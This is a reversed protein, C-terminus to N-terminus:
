HSSNKFIMIYFGVFVFFGFLALIHSVLNNYLSCVTVVILTLFYLM